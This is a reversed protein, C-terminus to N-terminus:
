TIWELLRFKAIEAIEILAQETELNVTNGLRQQFATLIDLKTRNKVAIVFPFGFKERYTQNLIQFQEYEDPSLQDLGAGAQEHVSAEAMKARSGLDPHAQILALQEVPSMSRMVNVMTQHLEAIDAFPRHYWTRHAISPTNEFAPGVAAVFADHSMQNLEHISYPM